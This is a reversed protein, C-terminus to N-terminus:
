YTAVIAFKHALDVGCVNHVPDRDMPGSRRHCSEKPKPCIGIKVRCEIDLRCLDGVVLCDISKRNPLLLRRERKKVGKRTVERTEYEYKDGNYEYSDEDRPELEYVGGDEKYAIKGEKNMAPHPRNGFIRRLRQYLTHVGEAYGQNRIMDFVLERQLKTLELYPKAM